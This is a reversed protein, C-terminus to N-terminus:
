LITDKIKQFHFKAKKLDEPTDIGFPEKTAETVLIKWGAELARLQELSECIELNSSAMIKAFKCLSHYRFAYVGVHHLFSIEKINNIKNIWDLGTAGLLEKPYPIPARSFYLALQNTDKTVKVVSSSFFLEAENRKFALTGLPVENNKLMTIALNEVDEISFFPEDGQINIIIDNKNLKNKQNLNEVAAYVRETGNILDPSTMICNINQSTVEDFIGQHDTAVILHIKDVHNNKKLKEALIKARSAVHSIICKSSIKLLPKGPLRSSAFRAPIVIYISNNEQNSVKSNM